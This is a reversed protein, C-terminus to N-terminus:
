HCHNPLNVSTQPCSSVCSRLTITKSMEKQNLCHYFSSDKWHQQGANLSDLSKNGGQQKCTM